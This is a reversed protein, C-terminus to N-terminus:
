VPDPTYFRQSNRYISESLRDASYRDRILSEWQRGSFPSSYPRDAKPTKAWSIFQDFLSKRFESRFKKVKLLKSVWYKETTDLELCARQVEEEIDHPVGLGWNFRWKVFNQIWETPELWTPLYVEKGEFMDTETRMDFDHSIFVHKKEALNGSFDSLLCFPDRPTTQNSGIHKFVIQYKKFEM